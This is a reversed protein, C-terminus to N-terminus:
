TKRPRGPKRPPEVIWNPLRELWGQQRSLAAIAAQQQVSARTAYEENLVLAATEIVSAVGPASGAKELLNAAAKSLIHAKALLTLDDICLVKRPRATM